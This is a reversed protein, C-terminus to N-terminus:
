QRNGLQDEFLEDLKCFLLYLFSLGLSVLDL